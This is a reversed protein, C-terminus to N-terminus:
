FINVKSGLFAGPDSNIRASVHFQQLYGGIPCLNLLNCLAEAQM